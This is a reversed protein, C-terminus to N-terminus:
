ALRFGERRLLGMEEELRLLVPFLQQDDKLEGEAGRAPGDERVGCRVPLWAPCIGPPDTAGSENGLVNGLNEKQSVRLFKSEQSSGGLVAQITWAAGPQLLIFVQCGSLQSQYRSSSSRSCKTSRSIRATLWLGIVLQPRFVGSSPTVNGDLENYQHSKHLM